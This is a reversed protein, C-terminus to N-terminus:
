GVLLGWSLEGLRGFGLSGQGLPEGDRVVQLISDKPIAGTWRSEEVLGCRGLVFSPCNKM